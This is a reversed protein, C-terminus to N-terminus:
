RSMSGAGHAAEALDEVVEIFAADRVHKTPPM